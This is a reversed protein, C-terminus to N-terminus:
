QIWDEYMKAINVKKHDGAHVIVRYKLTLDNGKAREFKGEKLWNLPTPSFFGYDRTFWPSPSWLNDPHVLIALGEFTGDRPGGYDMWDAPQAATDKEGSQGRSNVMTGGEKVSLAPVVRAAFLSHNTKDIVVDLQPKLTIEFDIIRIKASPATITIKRSDKFPSPAGPRIWDCNDIFQVVDGEEQLMYTSRSDIRGRELGEQWYNGGNVRDCGFFLSRHHPYPESTETTISKGTDPGNVPWFYPYKQDEAFKYETFLVGDVTISVRDQLLHAKLVPDALALSSGSLLLVIVLFIKTKMISIKRREYV